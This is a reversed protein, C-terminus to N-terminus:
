ACLYTYYTYPGDWEKISSTLDTTSRNRRMMYRINKLNHYPKGRAKHSVLARPWSCKWWFASIHYYRFSKLM